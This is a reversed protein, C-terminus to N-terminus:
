FRSTRAPIPQTEALVGTGVGFDLSTRQPSESFVLSFLTYVVVAPGRKERDTARGRPCLAFLAITYVMKRPFCPLLTYM